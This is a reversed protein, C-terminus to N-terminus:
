LSHKGVISALNCVAKLEPFTRIRFPRLHGQGNQFSQDFSWVHRYGYHVPGISEHSYSLRLFASPFLLCVCFASELYVSKSNLLDGIRGRGRGGVLLRWWWGM